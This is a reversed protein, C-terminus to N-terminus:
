PAAVPMLLGHEVRTMRFTARAPDNGANFWVPGALGNFPHKASLREIYRRVGSRTGGSAALARAVLRTADYALAAHADPYTGFRARFSAAFRHAASDPSQATFPTGIYAGQSSSDVVVGQWGDGGLFVADLNQRRAERLFAIGIDEDSAVLIVDPHVQKYFTVFPELPEGPGLPDANVITGRFSRRFAEMLGRGYADNHYLIGARPTRGLRERLTDAFRALIVGNVSDSTIMRYVWPSIGTLDPSSPTTAVAVLHGRDYVRAAAVEAGSGAHGVVALIRDNAVFEGAIRAADAGSAHDDRVITRLPVGDIGGARNIEDVALDVGHQNQIGYAATQPGAVGIVYEAPRRSCAAALLVM